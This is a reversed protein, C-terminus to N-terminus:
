AQAPMRETRRALTDATVAALLVAGTIIFQLADEVGLLAMGSAISQIVLAGLLASWTSGRGGFLSTGGIVAAAIANILLMGSGAARATTPSASTLGSAVFLGGIAALTGSTMFMVLRVRVVRVGARRAAVAGGGLAYVRRGYRTRRLVYDSVVIVVLFILLALPLGQFQNLTYAASFAVLALLGSRVGIEGPSRYRMGAATLRTRTRLCALAYGATGLAALGYAVAPQGFYSSTLSAVLGNEDLNITGSAGLLYLAMGNWALLGALTVVFSPVGVWAFFFGHVAGAAMGSLVAVIMALWEPVGLNVNLVAFAAGALGSVSGVSLDIEGILLVFVIGVAVLGTSVIDVSLNSLNRPSLFRDNLVQFLVCIMILGLVVLAPGREPGRVRTRVTHIFGGIGPGPGRARGHGDAGSSKGGAGSGDGAGAPQAEGSPEGGRM